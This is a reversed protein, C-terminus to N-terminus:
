VDTEDNGDGVSAYRLGIHSARSHCRVGCLEDHAAEEPSLLLMGDVGASKTMDVTSSHGSLEIGSESANHVQDGASTLSPSLEKGIRLDFQDLPKVEIQLPSMATDATNSDLSAGSTCASCGSDTTMVSGNSAVPSVQAKKEEQPHTSFSTSRSQNASSPASASVTSPLMVPKRIASVSSSSSRRMVGDALSMRKPQRANNVAASIQSARRSAIPSLHRKQRAEEEQQEHIKKEDALAEFYCLLRYVRGNDSTRVSTNNSLRSSKSLMRPSTPTNTLSTSKSLGPSRVAATPTRIDDANAVDKLTCSLDESTSSESSLSSMSSSCIEDVEPAVAKGTSPSSHASDPKRSTEIAIMSVDQASTTQLTPTVEGSSMAPSMVAPTTTTVTPAPSVMADSSSRPLAPQVRGRDHGGLSTNRRLHAGATPTALHADAPLPHQVRASRSRRVRPLARRPSSTSPSRVKTSGLLAEPHLSSMPTSPFTNGAAEPTDPTNSNTDENVDRSSTDSSECYGALLHPIKEKLLNYNSGFANEEHGHAQRDEEDDAAGTASSPKPSEAALSKDATLELLQIKPIDLRFYFSM